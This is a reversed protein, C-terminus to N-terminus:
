GNYDRLEKLLSIADEKTLKDLDIRKLKVMPDLIEDIIQYNLHINFFVRAYDEIKDIPFGCKQYDNTLKIKKLVMYKNIEEADDGIFIYFNGVKFLYLKSQDLRKLRNYENIIKSM